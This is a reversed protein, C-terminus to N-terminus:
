EVEVKRCGEDSSRLVALNVKLTQLGDEIPCLVARKGELADLFANEQLVFWDDREMRALPEDHWPGAPETMWRWRNEAMEFRVTGRQCNVTIEIENPMQHQNLTYVGMVGEGQRAIVHVTDEVSVGELVQHAADACVQQIPGVLWEAANLIHTLADQIAGGGKARDTWYITRYAPRYFPFHQGCVAVVQVPKGFRGSRLAERMATLVPHARYVYAVNAVLKKAQIKQALETAGDITTSLPKEIMLHIGLDALRLAIPLHSPAPTAILAADWKAKLADDLSAFVERVEYRKSVEQRLTENPECMGVVARQTAKFCRLHREGISGTGIILIRQM